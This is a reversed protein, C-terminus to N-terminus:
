SIMRNEDQQKLKISMASYSPIECHQHKTILLQISKVDAVMEGMSKEIQDQLDKKRRQQTPDILVQSKGRLSSQKSMEQKILNKIFKEYMNIEGTFKLRAKTFAEMERQVQEKMQKLTQEDAENALDGFDEAKM